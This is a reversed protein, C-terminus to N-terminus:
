TEIIQFAISQGGWPLPSSDVIEWRNMYTDTKSGDNQRSSM